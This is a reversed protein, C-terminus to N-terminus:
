HRSKVAAITSDRDEVFSQILDERSGLWKARSPDWEQRLSRDRLLHEFRALLQDLAQADDARGFVRCVRLFPGLGDRAYSDMAGLPSVGGKRGASCLLFDANPDNLVNHVFQAGLEQLRARRDVHTPWRRSRAVECWVQNVRWFDAALIPRKGFSPLIEMFLDWAQERIPLDGHVIWLMLKSRCGPHDALVGRLLSVATPSKCAGLLSLVHFQQSGQPECEVAGAWARLTDLIPPDALHEVWAPPDTADTPLPPPWTAWSNGGFRRPWALFLSTAETTNIHPLVCRGVAVAMYRAVGTDKSAANELLGVLDRRGSVLFPNPTERIKLGSSPAYEIVFRLDAARVEYVRFYSAVTPTSDPLERVSWGSPETEKVGVGVKESNGVLALASLIPFLLM